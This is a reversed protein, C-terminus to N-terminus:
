IFFRSPTQAATESSSIFSFWHRLTQLPPGVRALHRAMKPNRSVKSPNGSKQGKSCFRTLLGPSLNPWPSFNPKGAQVALLRLFSPSFQTCVLTRLLFVYLVVWIGSCFSSPFFHPDLLGFMHPIECSPNSPLSPLPFEISSVKPSFCFHFIRYRTSTPRYGICKISLKDPPCPSPDYQPVVASGNPPSFSPL